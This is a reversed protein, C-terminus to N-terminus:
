VRVATMHCWPQFLTGRFPLNKGELTPVTYTILDEPAGSVALDFPLTFPRFVSNKLGTQALVKRVMDIPRFRLRLGYPHSSSIENIHLDQPYPHFFDFAIMTGGPKLAGAVSRMASEFQTDDMMYLVANITIINYGAGSPLNLLDMVEFEVEKLEQNTRCVKLSSESLDGGTLILQPFRRKIYLLLNGTSCGIDLLKMSGTNFDHKMQIERVLELIIRDSERMQQAYKAQYTNYADLFSTDSVYHQYSFNEM